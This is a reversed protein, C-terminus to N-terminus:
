AFVELQAQALKIWPSQARASVTEQSPVMAIVLKWYAIAKEIEGHAAYYLGLYYCAMDQNIHAADNAIKELRVVGQLPDKSDLLMLAYAIDYLGYYPSTSGLQKLGENMTRLGAERDNKQIEINALLMKFFPAFVSRKYHIDAQKLDVEAQELVEAYEEPKTQPSVQRALAQQYADYADVFAMHAKQTSRERMFRYGKYGWWGGLAVLVALLLLTFTKDEKLSQLVHKQFFVHVETRIKEWEVGVAM